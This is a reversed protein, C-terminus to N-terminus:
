YTLRCGLVHLEVDDDDREVCESNLFQTHFDLDVDQAGTGLLGLAETSTFCCEALANLVNAPSLMRVWSALQTHVFEAVCCM